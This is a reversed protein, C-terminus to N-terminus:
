GNRRLMAELNVGTFLAGSHTSLDRRNLEEAVMHLSMQKQGKCQRRLRKVERIVEPSAEVHSKRGESKGERARKRDTAERLSFVIMDKEYEAIAGFVHRIFKRTPDGSVLDPSELASM